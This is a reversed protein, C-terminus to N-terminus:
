LWKNKYDAALGRWGCPPRDIVDASVKGRPFERALYTEVEERDALGLCVYEPVSVETLSAKHRVFITKPPLSRNILQGSPSVEQLKVPPVTGAISWGNEFARHVTPECDSNLLEVRDFCLIKSGCRPCNLPLEEEDRDSDNELSISKQNRRTIWKWLRTLKKEKPLVVRILGM